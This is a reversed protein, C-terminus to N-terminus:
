LACAPRRMVSTQCHRRPSAPPLRRLGAVDNRYTTRGNCCLGDDLFAAVGAQRILGIHAGGLLLVMQARRWTVVSGTCRRVIRLLRNGEEDSIPRVQVAHVM